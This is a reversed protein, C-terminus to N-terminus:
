LSGRKTINDRENNGNTYTSINEETRLYRIRLFSLCSPLPIELVVSTLLVPFFATFLINLPLDVFRLLHAEGM